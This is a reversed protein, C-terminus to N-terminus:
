LYINFDVLALPNFYINLCIFKDKQFSYKDKLM